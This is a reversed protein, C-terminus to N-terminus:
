MQWLKAMLYPFTWALFLFVNYLDADSNNYTQEGYSNRAERRLNIIRLRGQRNERPNAEMARPLACERSYSLAVYRM